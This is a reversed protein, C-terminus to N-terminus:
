AGLNTHLYIGLERLAARHDDADDTGGFALVAENFEGSLYVIAEVDSSSADIDYALIAYPDRRSDGPDGAESDVLVLKDDNGSDVALVAGATLEGAGSLITGKVEVRPFEGAILNPHNFEGATQFDATNM